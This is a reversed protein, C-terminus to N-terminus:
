ILFYVILFTVIMVCGPLFFEAKCGENKMTREHFLTFKSDPSANADTMSGFM